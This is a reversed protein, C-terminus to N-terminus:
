RFTTGFYARFNNRHKKRLQCPLFQASRIGMEHEEVQGKMVGLHTFTELDMNNTSEVTLFM